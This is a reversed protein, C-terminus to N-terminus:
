TRAGPRPRPPANGGDPPRSEAETRTRPRRSASRPRPPRLPACASSRRRRAAGSGPLRSRAGPHRRRAATSQLPGPLFRLPCMGPQPLQIRPRRSPGHRRSRVPSARTGLSRRFRAAGAGPGPGPTVPSRLRRPVLFLKASARPELYDPQLEPPMLYDAPITEITPYIDKM